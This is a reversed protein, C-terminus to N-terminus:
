AYNKKGRVLAGSDLIKFPMNPEGEIPHTFKAEIKVEIKSSKVNDSDRM